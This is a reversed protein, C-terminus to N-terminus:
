GTHAKVYASIAGAMQKDSVLLEVDYRKAAAMPTEKFLCSRPDQIFASGGSKIIQGLGELGDDCKGTLIVGAANKQMVRAAEAMFRDIAGEENSAAL